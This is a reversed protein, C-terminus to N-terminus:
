GRQGREANISTSYTRCCITEERGAWLCICTELWKTASISPLLSPTKFPITYTTHKLSSSHPQTVLSICIQSLTLSNPARTMRWRSSGEGRGLELSVAIQEPTSFLIDALFLSRKVWFRATNRRSTLGRVMAPFGGDGLEGGEDGKPM